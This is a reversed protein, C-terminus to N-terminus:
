YSYIHTNKTLRLLLDSMGNELTENTIVLNFVIKGEDVM